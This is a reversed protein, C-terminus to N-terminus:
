RGFMRLEWWRMPLYVVAAWAFGVYNGMDGGESGVLKALPGIFYFQAM